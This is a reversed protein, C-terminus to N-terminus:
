INRPNYPGSFISDNEVALSSGGSILGIKVLGSPGGFMLSNEATKEGYAILFTHAVATRWRGIGACAVV